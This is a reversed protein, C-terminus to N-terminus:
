LTRKGRLWDKNAGHKLRTRRFASLMEPRRLRLPAIRCPLVFNIRRKRLTGSRQLRCISLLTGVFVYLSLPVKLSAFPSVGIFLLAINVYNAYERVGQRM